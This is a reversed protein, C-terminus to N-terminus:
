ERCHQIQGMEASSVSQGDGGIVGRVTAATEGGYIGDLEIEWGCAHLAMQLTLVKDGHQGYKIPWGTAQPRSSKSTSKGSNNSKAVSSGGGCNALGQEECSLVRWPNDSRATSSSGNDDCAAVFGLFFAVLLAAFLLAPKNKMFKKIM